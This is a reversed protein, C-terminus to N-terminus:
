RATLTSSSALAGKAVALTTVTKALATPAAQVSNASIAGAIVATTSSVGHRNFYRHLKKLARSVRKQAAREEMGLAVGVETLTKNEFYRLVVANRDTV